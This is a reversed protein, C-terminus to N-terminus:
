QQKDHIPASQVPSQHSQHFAFFALTGVIIAIFIVILTPSCRKGALM